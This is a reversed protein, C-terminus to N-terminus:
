EGRASGVTVEAQPRVAHALKAPFEDWDTEALDFGLADAVEVIAAGVAKTAKFGTVFLGDVYVAIASGSSVFTVSMM